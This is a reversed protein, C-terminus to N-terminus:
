PKCVKAADMGVRQLDNHDDPLAHDYGWPYIIYEGYSHFSIAGDFKVGSTELFKKVAATEPESFAETGGYTPHCRYKSVGKGGWKYGFNRNLDVGKCQNSSHSRNKRWFRDRTRSYEYGDPNSLPLFYWDISRMCDSLENWNETLENVLFTVSAPTIWERAHIGGDIWIARNKPQNNSLKLVKLPREEHSYGIIKGSVIDPHSKAVFDIYSYIEALSYYADWSIPLGNRNMLAIDELSPNQQDAVKQVDDIAISFNLSAEKLLTRATEIGERQVLIDLHDQTNSWVQIDLESELTELIKENFDIRWLQSGKYTVIDDEYNRISDADIQRCHVSSLLHLIVCFFIQSLM